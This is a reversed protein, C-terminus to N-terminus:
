WFTILYALCLDPSRTFPVTSSSNDVSNHPRSNLSPPRHVVALTTKIGPRALTPLVLLDLTLSNPISLRSFLSLFSLSLNNGGTSLIWRPDIQKRWHQLGPPLVAPSNNTAEPSHMVDHGAPPVLGPIQCAALGLLLLSAVSQCASKEAPIDPGCPRELRASSATNRKGLLGGPQCARWPSDSAHAHFLLGRLTVQHWTSLYPPVGSRRSTEGNPLLLLRSGFLCPSMPPVLPLLISHTLGELRLTAATSQVPCTSQCGDM